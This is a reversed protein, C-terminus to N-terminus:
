HTVKYCKSLDKKKHKRIERLLGGGGWHALAEENRSTELDCVIIRWLRYSEELRTILEDCLGRGSLVCCDYCVFMWAGAPVRVWLRFLHAAAYGSRLCRPWQSRSWFIMVFEYHLPTDSTFNPKTRVSLQVHIWIQLSLSVSMFYRSM